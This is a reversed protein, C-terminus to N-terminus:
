ITRGAPEDRQREDDGASSAPRRCRARLVQQRGGDRGAGRGLALAEVTGGRPVAPTTVRCTAVGILPMTAALSVAPRRRSPGRRTRSRGPARDGARGAEVRTSTADPKTPRAACASRAPTGARRSRRCRSAEVDREGGTGVPVGPLARLEHADLRRRGEVLVQQVQEVEVHGLVAARVEHADHQVAVVVDVDQALGAEVVLDLDGVEGLLSRASRACPCRRRPRWRRLRRRGLPM